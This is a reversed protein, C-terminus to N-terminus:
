TERECAREAPADRSVTTLALVIIALRARSPECLRENRRSGRPFLPFSVSFAFGSLSRKDSRRKGPRCCCLFACFIATICGQVM